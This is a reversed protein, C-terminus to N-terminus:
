RPAARELIFERVEPLANPLVTCREECEGLGALIQPVEATRGIARSIAEPFKAPHATSLAVVPGTLQGALRDCAGLGVATHPDVIHGTAQWTSRIARLTDEEGTRVAVYRQRLENMVKEPITFRRRSRFELMANKLWESDRRSAEFLAREFNSAVQIDMSPSLTTQVSGAMGYEGTSLTRVLIDNVNTAIVLRGNWFHTQLYSM